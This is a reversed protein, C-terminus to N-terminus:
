PTITMRIKDVGHIAGTLTGDVLINRAIRDIKDASPITDYDPMTITYESILNRQQAEAFSARIANEILALGDRTYPVKPLSPTTFLNAINFRTIYELWDLGHLVDIFAGTATTGFLTANRAGFPSYFNGNRSKIATIQADTLNDTRVGNLQRYIWTASGADLPLLSGLWASAPSDEDANATYIATSRKHNAAALRKIINGDADTLVGAEQTSVAFLRSETQVATSVAFKDDNVGTVM